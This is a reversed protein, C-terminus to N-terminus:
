KLCTIGLCYQSLVLHNENQDKLVCMWSIRNQRTNKIITYHLSYITKQYLFFPLVRFRQIECSNLIKKGFYQFHQESYFFFLMKQCFVLFDGFFFQKGFTSSSYIMVKEILHDMASCTSFVGFVLIVKFYTKWYLTTPEM